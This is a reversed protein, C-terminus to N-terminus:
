LYKSKQLVALIESRENTRCTNIVVESSFLTLLSFFFTNPAFGKMGISEHSCSNNEFYFKFGFSIILTLMHSM